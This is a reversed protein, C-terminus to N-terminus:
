YEATLKFIDYTGDENKGYIYDTLEDYHLVSYLEYGEIHTAGSFVDVLNYKLSESSDVSLLYGAYALSHANKITFDKNSFCYYVYDDGIKKRPVFDDVFQINSDDKNSIIVTGEKTILTESDSNDKLLWTAGFFKEQEVSSYQGDIIKNGELDFIEDNYKVLEGYISPSDSYEQSVIKGSNDMYAYYYDDNKYAKSLYYEEEKHSPSFEEENLSYSFLVKDDTGYVKGESEVKYSGDDFLEAGSPLTKGDANVTIKNKNDDVYTFYDGKAEIVYATSGSIGDLIKEKELSYIYWKGKVLIDGKQPSLSIKGSTNIYMLAEDENKTFDEAKYVQVYKNNLVKFGFYEQPLLEKGRYDIIGRINIGSIKSSDMKKTTVVALGNEDECDTYIAGTDNKGDYSVIGYKGNSSYSLGYGIENISSTIGSPLSGVKEVKFGKPLEGSVEASQTVESQSDSTTNDDKGILEKINKGGCATFVSSILIVSLVLALFKKVKM